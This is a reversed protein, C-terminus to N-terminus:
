THHQNSNGCEKICINVRALYCFISVPFCIVMAYRIVVELCDMFLTCNYLYLLYQKLHGMRWISAFLLINRNEETGFMLIRDSGAGSDYILFNKGGLTQLSDDMVLDHLSIPNAPVLRTPKTLPPLAPLTPAFHPPSTGWGGEYGAVYAVCYNDWSSTNTTHLTKSAM